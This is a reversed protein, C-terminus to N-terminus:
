SNHKKEWPKPVIVFDVVKQGEQITWYKESSLGMVAEQGTLSKHGKGRNQKGM